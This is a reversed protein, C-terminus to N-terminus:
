GPRLTAQPFLWLLGAATGGAAGVGPVDRVDRGTAATM